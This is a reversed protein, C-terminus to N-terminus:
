LSLFSSVTCLFPKLNEPFVGNRSPGFNVPVSYSALAALAHFCRAKWMAYLSGFDQWVIKERYIANCFLKFSFLIIATSNSELLDSITVKVISGLILM